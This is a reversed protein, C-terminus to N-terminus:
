FVPIPGLKRIFGKEYKRSLEVDNEISGEFGLIRWPQSDSTSFMMFISLWADGLIAM